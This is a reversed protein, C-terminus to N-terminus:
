KFATCGQVRVEEMEDAITHRGDGALRDVCTRALFHTEAQRAICFLEYIDTERDGIHICRQPEDFLATSQRLNELWRFREKAEIPIRTPNIKKKLANSGYVSGSELVQDSGARSTGL